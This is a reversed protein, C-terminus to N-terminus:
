SNKKKIKNVSWDFVFLKWLLDIQGMFLTSKPTIAIFLLSELVPAEDM